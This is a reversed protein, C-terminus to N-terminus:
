GGGLFPRAFRFSGGVGFTSEGDEEFFIILRRYSDYLGPFRRSEAVDTPSM